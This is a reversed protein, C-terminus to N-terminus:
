ALGRGNKVIQGDAKLEQIIKDLIGNVFGSSKPTGFEKSLDIYENMSAKIPINEFQTIETLALKIVLMDLVIIREIDWNKLHKEILDDYKGFNQVTKDFLKVMFTKDDDDGMGESPKLLPAFETTEPKEPDYCKLWAHVMLGTLVSDDGWHLNKEEYLARLNSDFAIFKKFLKVVFQRQSAFDQETSNMHNQYESWEQVEKYIKRFIDNMDAWNMRLGNIANQVHTNDRLHLLLPNEIFNLNPNIDEDTPVHKHRNEEIKREAIDRLELLASIQIFILDRMDEVSDVLARRGKEIDTNGGVVYSYVAQLTKSRIIHRSLM